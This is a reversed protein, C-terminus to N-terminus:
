VLDSRKGLDRERAAAVRHRLSSRRLARWRGSPARLVGLHPLGGRRRRVPDPFRPRFGRPRLAPPPQGGDARLGAVASLDAFEPRLDIIVDWIAGRLCSVVKVEAHPARQFHMGRLTGQATSYSTNHQVFRTTLGHEAFELTCFTRAFFGRHDRAPVPEILWAGHLKTEEFQMPFPRSPPLSSPLSVCCGLAGIGGHPRGRRRSPLDQLHNIALNRAAAAGSGPPAASTGMRELTERLLLDRLRPVPEAPKTGPKRRATHFPRCREAPPM